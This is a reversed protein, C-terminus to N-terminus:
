QELVHGVSRPAVSIRGSATQGVTSRSSEKSEDLIDEIQEIIEDATARDKLIPGNNASVKIRTARETISEFDIFIDLKETAATFTRKTGAGEEDLLEIGMRELAAETALCVRDVPHTFTKQAVNALTYNLGMGAGALAASACGGAFVMLGLAMVVFAKRLVM